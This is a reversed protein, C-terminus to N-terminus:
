RLDNSCFATLNELFEEFGVSEAKLGKSLGLELDVILRGLDAPQFTIEGSGRNERRNIVERTNIDEYRGRAETGM